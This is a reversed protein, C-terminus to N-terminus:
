SAFAHNSPQCAPQIEALRAATALHPAKHLLAPNHSFTSWTQIDVACLPDEDPQPIVMIGPLKQGHLLDCVSQEVFEWVNDKTGVIGVEIVKPILKTILMLWQKHLAVGAFSKERLTLLETTPAYGNIFHATRSSWCSLFAFGYSVLVGATMSQTTCWNCPTNVHALHNWFCCCSSCADGFSTGAPTSLGTVQQVLLFLIPEPSSCFLIVTIVLSDRTRQLIKQVFLLHLPQLFEARWCTTTTKSPVSM